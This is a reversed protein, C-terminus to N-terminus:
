EKIIEWNGGFQRPNSGLEQCNLDEDGRVGRVVAIAEL